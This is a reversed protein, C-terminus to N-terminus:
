QPLPRRHSIVVLRIWLNRDLVKLTLHGNLLFEEEKEPVIGPLDNGCLTTTAM